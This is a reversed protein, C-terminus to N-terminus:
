AAFRSSRVAIASSSNSSTSCRFSRRALRPLRERQLVGRDRMARQSDRAVVPAVTSSGYRPSRTGAARAVGLRRRRCQAARARRGAIGVPPSASRAWAARSWRTPRRATCACATVCRRRPTSAEARATRRRIGALVDGSGATALARNGSANIDWSGDPHALVSGAGKVVVQAKLEHALAQAARSGIRAAGRSTDHRSCARPRRRSAADSRRRRAPACRASRLPAHTSRDSQARRCRAGAAGREALARAVLDAAGPETGLGPGVVLAEAGAGVAGIRAARLMLEPTVGTWRRLSAAGRVRDLGQRRGAEARARGALLPAGVMGEAGGIIGLTGFSGKHVNRVRRACCTAAARRRPPGLRPSPRAGPAVAEADLGLAHVSIEGCLDVGDGTLLGPKLAIFTATATAHICPAGTAMGTDADLGSPVDLALIPAPMANSGSSWRRTTPRSRRARPRHRLTWRRDAPGAMDAPFDAISQRGAPRRRVGRHAAAADPPLRAADARFVVTSM